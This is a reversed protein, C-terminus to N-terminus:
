GWTYPHLHGGWLSSGSSRIGWTGWRGNGKMAGWGAVRETYKPVSLHLQYRVRRSGWLGGLPPGAELPGETEVGKRFVGLEKM